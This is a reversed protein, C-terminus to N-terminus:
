RVVEVDGGGRVVEGVVFTREGLEVAARVLADAEGPPVALIMGLGLNFTREMELPEIPGLRQLMSFVMPVPWAGWTLRAACGDPLMRPINEHFGGGTINAMGKVAFRRCLELMTKVYIRTPRLLEEGLSCGLEAVPDDLRYHAQLVRRALSFGNSHLGSSALGVLADGPVISRGDVIRDKEVCGVCFGALDFEGTPYFGPLQATEGGLLACGAQVCGDAIGKVLALVVEPELKGVAIYDLFFLPEAGQVVVDNASMAVLDVGVTDYIGMEMAVKLKTGVGDTSSVLVPRKWRTLDLEFLGGFAGIDGMVGPRFTRRTHARMDKVTAQKKEVDVGAQRYTLGESM